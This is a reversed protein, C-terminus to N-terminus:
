ANCTYLVYLVYLAYLVFFLALIIIEKGRNM